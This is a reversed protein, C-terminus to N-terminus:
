KVNSETEPLPIYLCLEQNGLAIISKGLSDSLLSKFSVTYSEGSKTRGTSHTTINFKGSIEVWSDSFYRREDLCSANIGDVGIHDDVKL